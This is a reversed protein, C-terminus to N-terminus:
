NDILCSNKFRYNFIQTDRSINILIHFVHAKLLDSENKVKIPNNQLSKRQKM